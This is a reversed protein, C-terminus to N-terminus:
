KLHSYMALLRDYWSIEEMYRYIRQDVTEVSPVADLPKLSQALSAFSPKIRKKADVETVKTNRIIRLRDADLERLKETHLVCVPKSVRGTAIQARHIKQMMSKRVFFSLRDSRIHEICTPCISLATGVGAQTSKIKCINDTFNECTVCKCLTYSYGTTLLQRCNCHLLDVEAEAEAEAYKEARRRAAAAAAVAELESRRRAAAAVEADKEARRKAAAAAEVNRELQRKADAELEARRRAAELESRRKADAEKEARRRAMELEARKATEAELKARRKAEEAEEMLLKQCYPTEKWGILIGHVIDRLEKSLSRDTFRKEKFCAPCIHVSHKSGYPILCYETWNGCAHCPTTEGHNKLPDPRLEYKGSFCVCAM